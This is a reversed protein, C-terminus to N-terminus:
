LFFPFLLKCLSAERCPNYIHMYIDVNISIYIYIYVTYIYLLLDKENRRGSCSFPCNSTSSNGFYVSETYILETIVFFSPKLGVNELYILPRNDWEEVGGFDLIEVM